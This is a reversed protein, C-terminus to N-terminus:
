PVPNQRLSHRARERGLLPNKSQKFNSDFCAFFRSHINAEQNAQWAHQTTDLCADILVRTAPIQTFLCNVDKCSLMIPSLAYPPPPPFLRFCLGLWYLLVYKTLFDWIKLKHGSASCPCYFLGLRISYVGLAKPFQSLSIPALTNNEWYDVQFCTSM